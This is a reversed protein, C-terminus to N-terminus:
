REAEDRIAEAGPKSNRVILRSKALSLPGLKDNMSQEVSGRANEMTFIETDVTATAATIEGKLRVICVSLIFTM